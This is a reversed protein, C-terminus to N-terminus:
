GPAGTSPSPTPATGGAASQGSGGSSDGGFETFNNYLTWLYRVHTDEYLRRMTAELNAIPLNTRKALEGILNEKEVALLNRLQPWYWALDMAGTIGEEELAEWSRPLTDVLIAEDIWSLIQRMDFSTNRVLRIPEAEALSNVDIIGEESLREEIQPSIGRIRTLPVLRSQIVGTTGGIKLLQVAAQEIAAIVRRPAFGTFFLVVGGGWWENQAPGDIRWLIAVVAALVPGLVLTVLCWLASAGTIDHRFTRRGLELLVYIYAGVAGLKIGLVLKTLNVDTAINELPVLGQVRLVRILKILSGPDVVVSLIVIGAVGLLVGPFVYRIFLMRVGYQNGLIDSARQLYNKYIEEEEWTTTLTGQGRKSQRPQSLWLFFAQYFVLIAPLLGVLLQWRLVGDVLDTILVFGLAVIALVINALVDRQERQKKSLLVLTLVIILAADIAFIVFRTSDFVAFVQRLYEM